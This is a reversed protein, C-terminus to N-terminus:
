KLEPVGGFFISRARKRDRVNQICVLVTQLCLKPSTAPTSIPNCYREAIVSHRDYAASRHQLGINVEEKCVITNFSTTLCRIYYSTFPRDADDDSDNDVPYLSHSKQHFLLYIICIHVTNKTSTVSYFPLAAKEFAVHDHRYRDYRNFYYSVFTDVTTTTYADIKFYSAFHLPACVQLRFCCM